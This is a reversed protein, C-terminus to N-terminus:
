SQAALWALQEGIRLKAMPVAVEYGDHLLAPVLFERYRKGAFIVVRRRGILTPALQRHVNEAWARREAVGITNLTKEYPAVRTDPAVVGYLASLILWDVGHTELLTRVKTFWQSRYLLRAPAPESNKQSVCSVLVLADKFDLSAGTLPKQPQLMRLM